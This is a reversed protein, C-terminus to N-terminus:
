QIAELIKTATNEGIGDISTLKDMTLTMLDNLSHLNYTDVILKSRKYNLGYIDHCLFNLAPCKDKKPFRKVLPKDQFIKRSQSLMTYFAEDIYPSYVQLVTCYRNISSIAGIYQYVTVRHHHKTMALSKARTSEDGHILVFRHDFNEAMNISQNFVRNDQISSIFDPITKFEFVVNTKGNTFIYDGIELEQIETNIGQRNYYSQASQIRSQERHDIKVTLENM